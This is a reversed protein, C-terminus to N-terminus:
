VNTVWNARAPFFMGSEMVATCCRESVDNTFLTVRSRTTGVMEALVEQPVRSM